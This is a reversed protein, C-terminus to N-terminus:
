FVDLPQKDSVGVFDVFCIGDDISDYAVTYLTLGACLFVAFGAFVYCYVFM